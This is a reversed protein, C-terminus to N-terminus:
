NWISGWHCWVSFSCMCFSPMFYFCCRFSLSDLKFQLLTEVSTNFDAGEKQVNPFM